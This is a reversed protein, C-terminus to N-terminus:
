CGGRIAPATDGCGGTVSRGISEGSEEEANGADGERARSALFCGGGGDCDSWAGAEKDWMAPVSIDIIEEVDSDLVDVNGRVGFACEGVDGIGAYFVGGCGEM